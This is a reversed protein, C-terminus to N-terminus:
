VAPRNDFIIGKRKFVFLQLGIVPSYAVMQFRHIMMMMVMMMTIITITMTTMRMMMTTTVLTAHQRPLDTASSLIAGNM